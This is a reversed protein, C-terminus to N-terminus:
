QIEKIQQLLVNVEIKKLGFTKKLVYSVRKQVEQIVETIKVGYAVVLYVDVAYGSKTKRTHVGKVYDEKKLLERIYATSANPEVLGVVGYCESAAEGSLSAVAEDTIAINGYQTKQNITMSLELFLRSIIRSIISNKLDYLNLALIYVIVVFHRTKYFTTYIKIEHM